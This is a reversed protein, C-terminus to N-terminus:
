MEIRSKKDPVGKEKAPVPKPLRRIHNSHNNLRQCVDESLLHPNPKPFEPLTIEDKTNLILRCDKIYKKVADFYAIENSVDVGKYKEDLRFCDTMERAYEETEALECHLILYPIFSELIDRIAANHENLNDKGQAAMLAQWDPNNLHYEAFHRIHAILSGIDDGFDQRGMYSQRRGNQTYAIQFHTKFYGGFGTEKKKEYERLDLMRFAQNAANLSMEQRENFYEHESEVTVVPETDLLEKQLFFDPVEKFGFRDVYYAKVSGDKNIAVIDSISLSHGRFDNPHNLNFREYIKDLTDSESLPATYILDYNDREVSNGEKQLMDLSTFLHYRLREEQKLQYIGYMPTESSLDLLEAERTKNNKTDM